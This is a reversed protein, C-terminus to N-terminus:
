LEIEEGALMADVARENKSKRPKRPTRPKAPPILADFWDAFDDLTMVDTLNAAESFGKVVPGPFVSMRGSIPDLADGVVFATSDAGKHRTTYYLRFALDKARIGSLVYHTRDEAPFRETGGAGASLMVAAKHTRSRGAQVEWGASEARKAYGRPAQPLDAISILNRQETITVGELDDM